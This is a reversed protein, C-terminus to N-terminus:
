FYELKALFNSNKETNADQIMEQAHLNFQNVNVQREVKQRCTIKVICYDSTDHSGHHIKESQM